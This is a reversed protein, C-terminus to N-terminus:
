LEQKVVGTTPKLSHEPPEAGTNACRRCPASPAGGAGAGQASPCGHGGRAWPKRQTETPLLGGPLEISMTLAQCGAGGGRGRESGGFGEGPYPCGTGGGGAARSSPPVWATVGRAPAFLCGWGLAAAAQAPCPKVQLLLVRGHPYLRGRSTERPGTGSCPALLAPLAGGPTGPGLSPQDGRLEM